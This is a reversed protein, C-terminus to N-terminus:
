VIGKDILNRTLLTSTIGTGSVWDYPRLGSAQLRLFMVTMNQPM